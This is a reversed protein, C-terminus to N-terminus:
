EAASSDTQSSMAHYWESWGTQRHLATPKINGFRQGMRACRELYGRNGGSAIRVGRLPSLQGLRRCYAYHTAAFLAQELRAVLKSMVQPTVNMAELFLVYGPPTGWEPAVMAFLPAIRFEALVEDLVRRVFAEHLKEGCLDSTDESRGVFEVLPTAAARGIVRVRDGLRYRYLGGSTTLLVSYTSGEDLEHALLPRAAPKEEDIFELFHSTIALAAGPHGTLPLSVVGETALLGKPQIEVGPFLRQLAPIFLSAGANAWCSIVRLRPWIEAPPLTGHAKFIEQLKQARKPLPVLKECLAAHINPPLPSPSTLTGKKLDSLLSQHNEELADLLLTLFSPNWISIFTLHPTALLFRLMTYRSAAINPIKPLEPPTIVLRALFRRGFGGFYETDDAFGVPLGGETLEPASALPSVSWYAGGGLMEPRHFYLDALWPAIAAQFERLLRATYPVYKAAATSGSTRELTLVPEETLVGQRGAKIAGIEDTLADFGIVPVANQYDRITHLRHFRYTRGYRTGANQGLVSVLIAEQSERPRRLARRFKLAAKAGGGLWLSNLVFYGFPNV